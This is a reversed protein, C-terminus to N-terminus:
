VYTTTPPGFTLWARAFRGDCSLKLPFPQLVRRSRSLSPVSLRSLWQPRETM